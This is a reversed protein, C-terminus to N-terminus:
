RKRNKPHLPLLSIEIGIFLLEEKQVLVLASTNLRKAAFSIRDKVTGKTLSLRDKITRLALFLEDTTTGEISLGDEIATVYPAIKQKATDPVKSWLNHLVDLIGKFITLTLELLHVFLLPVSMRLLFLSLVKEAKERLWPVLQVSPKHSKNAKLSEWSLQSDFTRFSFLHSFFFKCPTSM